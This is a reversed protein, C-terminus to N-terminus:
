PTRSAQAPSGLPQLLVFGSVPWKKYAETFRQAFGVLPEDVVKHQLSSAHRVMPGHDTHIVLGLHSIRNPDEPGSRHAVMMITGAPIQEAHAAVKDPPLLAMKFTGVPAKDDPLELERGVTRQHWMDLTVTRTDYVTDAGAIEATIDRVFGKRTNAPVWTAEMYHNRDEYSIDNGRYRIQQLVDTANQASTARTLALVEEVFTVCDVQDYRVIPDPDRGKGEGLCGLKYPTGLFAESAKVVREGEDPVTQLQQILATLEAPSMEAVPKAPSASLALALVLASSTM